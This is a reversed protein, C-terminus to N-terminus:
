RTVHLILMFWKCSEIYGLQVLEELAEQFARFGM